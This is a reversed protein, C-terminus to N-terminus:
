LRAIVQGAKVTDNFDVEVSQLIGSVQTGVDVTATASLTGTASIATRIEGRTVPETRYGQDGDDAHSSKYWYAAVAIALLIVVPWLWRRRTTSQARQLSSM